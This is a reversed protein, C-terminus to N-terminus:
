AIGAQKRRMNKRIASAIRLTHFKANQDKRSGIAVM